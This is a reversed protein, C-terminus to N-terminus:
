RIYVNRFYPPKKAVMDEDMFNPLLTGRLETSRLDRVLTLKETGEYYELRVAEDDVATIVCCNPRTDLCHTGNARIQRDEIIKRFFAHEVPDLFVDWTVRDGRENELLCQLAKVRKIQELTRQSNVAVEGDTGLFFVIPRMM